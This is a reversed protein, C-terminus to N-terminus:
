VLPHESRMYETVESQIEEPLYCLFCLDPM